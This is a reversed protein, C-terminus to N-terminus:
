MALRGKGKGQLAKEIVTHINLAAAIVFAGVVIGYVGMVWTFALGGAIPYRLIFLGAIIALVGGITDLVRSGTDKDMFAVAIELVGQLFFTVGALLIFTALTLLPNSLVYISVGIQLLGLILSLFWARRHEVSVIGHVTNVVGTWLIYFAFIYSLVVLTIGPWAVALIGFFLLTIGRILVLWWIMRLLEMHMM